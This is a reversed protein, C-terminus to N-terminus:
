RAEPPVAPRSLRAAHQARLTPVQTDTRAADVARAWAARHGFAAYSFLEAVNAAAVVRRRFLSLDIVAALHRASRQIFPLVAAASIAFGPDRRVDAIRWSV